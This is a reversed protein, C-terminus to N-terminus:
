MVVGLMDQVAIVKYSLNHFSTIDVKLLDVFLFIQGVWKSFSEFDFLEIFVFSLHTNSVIGILELGLLLQQFIHGIAM